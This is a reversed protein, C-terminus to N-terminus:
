KKITLRGCFFVALILAAVTVIGAVVTGDQNGGAASFSAIVFMSIALAFCGGAIKPESQSVVGWILLCSSLVLMAVLACVGFIYIVQESGEM